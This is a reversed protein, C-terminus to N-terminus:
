GHVRYIPNKCLQSCYLKQIYDVLGLPRHRNIETKRLNRIKKTKMDLVTM